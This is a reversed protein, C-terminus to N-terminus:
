LPVPGPTLGLSAGAGGCVCQPPFCVVGLRSWSQIKGVSAEMALEARSGGALWEHLEERTRM